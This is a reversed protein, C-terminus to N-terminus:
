GHQKEENINVFGTGGCRVRLASGPAPARHLRPRAFYGWWLALLVAVVTAVGWTILVTKM